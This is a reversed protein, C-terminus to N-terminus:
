SVFVVKASYFRCQGGPYSRKEAIRARSEEQTLYVVWGLYLLRVRGSELGAVGFGKSVFSSRTGGARFNCWSFLSSHFGTHKQWNEVLTAVEDCFGGSTQRMNVKVSTSISISISIWSMGMVRKIAMAWIRVRRFLGLVRAQRVKRLYRVWCSGGM